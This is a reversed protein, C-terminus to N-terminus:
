APAPVDIARELDAWLSRNRYDLAAVTQVATVYVLVAGVIVFLAAAKAALAIASQAPITNLVTSPLITLLGIVAGLGGLRWMGAPAARRAAARLASFPTRSETVVYVYAVATYGSILSAAVVVLATGALAPLREWDGLRGFAAVAMEGGVIVAVALYTLLVLGLSSWFCRRGLHLGSAFPLTDEPAACIAILVPCFFVALLEAALSTSVITLTGASADWCLNSLVLPLNILTMVALLARRQRVVITGARRFIEGLSLPRGSNM